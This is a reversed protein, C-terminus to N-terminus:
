QQDQRVTKQAQPARSGAPNKVRARAAVEARPSVELAYLGETSSAALIIPSVGRTALVPFYGEALPGEIHEWTAGRDYSLHLGHKQTSVLLADGASALDRIWLEPLNYAKWTKGSDDSAYLGTDGAVLLTNDDPQYLRMRGQPAFSLQNASWTKGRDHSIMLGRPSVLWVSSGDSSVRLSHVPFKAATGLPVWSWTAGRDRSALLGDETAAWWADRAFAMGNVVQTVPRSSAKAPLPTKGRKAGPTEKSAVLGAKVWANKQTDYRMLGGRDLSAWWGDPAAYVRRLASASLGPGLRAWSRGGDQTALVTDVSNTLVVLMREPRERDLALDVVQRHYFGENSPRFSKGSDESIYVGQGEVGIVLRGPTKPHLVLTAISWNAPTIHNWTVGGDLTKWLGETTASYLTQPNLPDQRIVHTRRATPPICRFKSWLAGANESRYICSCASAFVRQPAAPDISISMVDSDDVMGAHIPVWQRGGDSTKWALHYTGAYIIDPNAPDIAVSDFNRLDEHNAPSILEWNKGADRSRFVGALTGAVLIDPKSPAQALARVTQGALGIMRWTHGADDSRFVGGGNSGLTWAGAYLTASKRTDVLIATVVSDLRAGVRGLLQWHEGADRSGFIHGDSVGLYLLRPDNPDAALM